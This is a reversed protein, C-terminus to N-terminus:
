ELNYRELKRYLTSRSIKLKKIIESKSMNLQLMKVIMQREIDKTAEFEESILPTQKQFHFIEEPILDATLENTQSYNMMREIVNQLERVNGPWPYNMFINTVKEDVRDIGKEMIKSHKNIFYDILLPIDDLRERLPVMNISFVNARYYLDERFNGKRVEEKLHRNTAVIIRVDVPRVSSGGIRVISKDEIVRLLAAQLELPTEAIEDLFITGGDALEFKGQNGGRKSGTFSGETYGFLESSILDRPIAGCNIAVYPGNRRKSANHIAQAFIDKGTGSEGLLLVNSNSQSVMRAQRITELFGQNMGCIDEFRLNAKAGIMKTVLMKARKIENLIIIKGMLEGNNSLIPNSTLTYDKAVDDSFIRVEVDILSQNKEIMRFFEGNKDGFVEHINKHEVWKNQSFFMNKANDNMLSILGDNDIAILAEPISSIVTKQYSNAVHAEILAKNIRLENEIAMAAAVTMGLTHPNVKYYLGTMVLGGIFEGEPNFIPASSGTERHFNRCYHQCGFIQIPRQVKLLTGVGNTGASEEGWYAGPVFNGTRAHTIVHEDGIIELLYGEHNFLVVIIGSGEVFKYLHRMFPWSIKILDKNRNQLDQLRNGTLVNNIVAKKPNVGYNKCRIWSELIENPIVAEDLETGGSIFKEWEKRTRQHEEDYNVIRQDAVPLNRKKPSNKPKEM